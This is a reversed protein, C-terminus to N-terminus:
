NSVGCADASSVKYTPNGFQPNGFYAGIKTYSAVVGGYGLFLIFVVGTKDQFPASVAIDAYGDGNLDGLSQPTISGLHHPPDPLRPTLLAWLGCACVYVSVAVATGFGAKAACQGALAGEGPIIKHYNRVM